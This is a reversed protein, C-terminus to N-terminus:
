AYFDDDLTHGSVVPMVKWPLDLMDAMAAMLTFISKNFPGGGGMIRLLFFISVAGIDRAFDEPESFSSLLLAFSSFETSM